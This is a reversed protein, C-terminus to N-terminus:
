YEDNMTGPKKSYFLFLFLNIAYIKRYYGIEMTLGKTNSM